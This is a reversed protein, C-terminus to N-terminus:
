IGIMLRSKGIYPWQLILHAGVVGAHGDQLPVGPADVDQSACEVAGDEGRSPVVFGDAEPANGAAGTSGDQIRPVGADFRKSEGGIACSKSRATVAGNTEPGQGIVGAGGDQLPVSIADPCENARGVAGECGTASVVGDTEPGQGIM